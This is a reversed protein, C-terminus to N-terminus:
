RGASRQPLQVRGARDRRVARPDWAFLITKLTRFSDRSHVSPPSGAASVAKRRRLSSRAATRVFAGAKSLNAAQPRGAADIVAKRDFFMKTAQASIM